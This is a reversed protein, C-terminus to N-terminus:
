EITLIGILGGFEDRTSLLGVPIVWAGGDVRVNMQYTGSALDRSFSWWGDSGGTLGVPQWETFDATIEVTKASPAFVRLERRTSGPVPTRVSFSPSGTPTANPVTAEPSGLEAVARRTNASAFRLAISVFRGGPYGQTLDVPYSGAAGVFAIQRSLWAVVSLNGWTRSSGGIAPSTAGIRAGATFGLEFVGRPYRLATQLDAYRITDAVVVPTLSALATTESRNMWAGIEAQRVGRWVVGDWTRGLGGGVWAGRGGDIAYLRALGLLQGTRSGDSHTSGGLAGALEATFPGSSPSFVSPALSAQVSAEQQSLRTVSASAGVTARSWDLRFAPSVSAGNSRLTDAYAVATASVDVSSVVRPSTVQASAGQERAAQAYTRSVITSLLAFSM